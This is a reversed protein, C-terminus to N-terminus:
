SALCVCSPQVIAEAASRPMASPSSGDGEAELGALLLMFRAGDVMCGDVSVCCVCLAPDGIPTSGVPSDSPPISKELCHCRVRRAEMAKSRSGPWSYRSGPATSWVVMWLCAVCACCQPRRNSDFWSSFRIASYEKRPLTTLRPSKPRVQARVSACTTSNQSVASHSDGRAQALTHSWSRKRSFEIRAVGGKTPATSTSKTASPCLCMWASRM